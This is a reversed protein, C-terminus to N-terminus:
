PPVVGLRCNTGTQVNEMKDADQRQYRLGAGTGFKDAIPKNKEKVEAYCAKAKAYPQERGVFVHEAICGTAPARRPIAM